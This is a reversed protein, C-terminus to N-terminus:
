KEKKFYVTLESLVLTNRNVTEILERHDKEYKEVRLNTCDDIKKELKDNKDHFFVIVLVLIVIELGKKQLATILINAIKNFSMDGIKHSLDVPNNEKM